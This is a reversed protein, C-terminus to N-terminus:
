FNYLDAQWQLFHYIGALQANLVNGVNGRIVLRAQTLAWGVINAKHISDRLGQKGRIAMRYSSVSSTKVHLELKRSKM